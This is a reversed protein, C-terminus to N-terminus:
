AKAERQFEITCRVQLGDGLPVLVIGHARREFLHGVGVMLTEFQEEDNTPAAEIVSPRKPAKAKRAPRKRTRSDRSAMM